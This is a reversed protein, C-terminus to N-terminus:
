GTGEPRKAGSDSWQGCQVILTSMGQRAIARLDAAVNEPVIDLFREAGSLGRTSRHLDYAHSRFGNEPVQGRHRDTMERPAATISRFPALLPLCSIWAM